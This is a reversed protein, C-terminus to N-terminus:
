RPNARVRSDLPHRWKLGPFKAFDGDTTIWTDDRDLAFAALYANAALKTRANIRRCLGEYIGWHRESPYVITCNPSSAVANCFAFVEALTGPPQFKPQTVVRVVSQLVIEPVGFRAQGNVLEEVCPKIAAHQPMDQRFAYILVNVDLLIM